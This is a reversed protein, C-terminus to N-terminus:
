KFATPGSGDRAQLVSFGIFDLANCATVARSMQIKLKESIVVM